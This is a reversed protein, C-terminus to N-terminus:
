LPRGPGQGAAPDRPGGHLRRAARRRARHAPRGVVEELLGRSAALGEAANKQGPVPIDMVTAACFGRLGAEKTVEAVQDEYFYMDAFTTTGTRIMEWAALRTGWRVFEPDVLANEAPWIYKTLWVMLEVDDALGRMLTMPVHTHANVLGPMVIGGRADM